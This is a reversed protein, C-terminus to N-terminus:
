PTWGEPINVEKGEHTGASHIAAPIATDTSRPIM